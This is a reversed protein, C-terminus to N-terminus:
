KASRSFHLRRINGEADQEWQRLQGLDKTWDGARAELRRTLAQYRALRRQYFEVTDVRAEGPSHQLDLSCCSVHRM